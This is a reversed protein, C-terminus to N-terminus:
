EDDEEEDGDDEQAAQQAEFEEEEERTPDTTEAIDEGAYESDITPLPAPSFPESLYKLGFGIYVNAFIKSVGIAHAGPWRNSSIRVCSFSPHATSSLRTSWAPMGDVDADNQLPTLLPPGAEPEVEEEEEEEEEDDEDEQDEDKVVPNVWKCRGQPLIYQAHHVWGSLDPELLEALAKGEFEEDEIFTDREDEEDEDEEDFTYFGSPSVHTAATIRAIQARLLDAETGPFSPYSVVPTDLNGTFRKRIQRAVSISKPTADPLLIWDQGPENCVFYIKKNVGSGYEEVPLPPIPKFTSKPLPDADEDEESEKEEEQDGDDEPQPEEGERYQAEAIYYNKELGFIKGWFTVSKLPQTEALQKLAMFIRFSEDAGVGVDASEFYQMLQPMNPVIQEDDEEPVETEHRLLQAQTNALLISDSLEPQEKLQSETSFRTAKLQYSLSELMDAANPPKEQLVKEILDAMHDYMSIGAGESTQKLFAKAAEFDAEAM